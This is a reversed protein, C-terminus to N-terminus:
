GGFRIASWHTCAKAVPIQKYVQRVEGMWTEYVLRAELRVQIDYWDFPIYFAGQYQYQEWVLATPFGGYSSRQLHIVRGDRVHTLQLYSTSPLDYQQLTCQAEVPSFHATFIVSLVLIALALRRRTMAIEKGLPM